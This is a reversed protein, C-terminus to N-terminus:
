VIHVSNTSLCGLVSCIWLRNRIINCPLLPFICCAFCDPNSVLDKKRFVWLSAFFFICVRRCLPRFNFRFNVIDQLPTENSKRRRPTACFRARCALTSKKTMWSKSCLSYNCIWAWWSSTPRIWASNPKASFLVTQFFFPLSPLSFFNRDLFSCPHGLPSYVALTPLTLFQDQEKGLRSSLQRQLIWM